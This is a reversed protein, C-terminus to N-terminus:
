HGIPTRPASPKPPVRLACAAASARSTPDADALARPLAAYFADFWAAARTSPPTSPSDPAALHDAILRLATARIGPEPDELVRRALRAALEDEPVRLHAALALGERLIADLEALPIKATDYHLREGRLRWGHKVAQLVAARGAPDLAALVDLPGGDITVAADFTRDGLAPGEHRETAVWPARDFALTSPLDHYVVVETRDRGTVDTVILVHVKSGATEGQISPTQAFRVSDRYIGLRRGRSILWPVDPVAEDQATVVRLGLGRAIQEWVRRVKDRAYTQRIRPGYWWVCFAILLGGVIVPGALGATHLAPQLASDAATM